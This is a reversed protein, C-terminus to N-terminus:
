ASRRRRGGVVGAFGLLALGAPAPVCVVFVSSFGAQEGATLSFTLRIGLVGNVAPGPASPIPMGFAEGPIAVGGAGVKGVSFPSDLLSAVTNGDILAEWVPTAGVSSLSGGDTDTTLGGGVSGGIKTPGAIGNVKWLITLSYTHAVSDVNTFVANGSLINQLAGGNTNLDWGLAFSTDFLDGQYNTLGGGLPTGAPDFIFPGAGDVSLQFQVTDTAQASTAIFAVGAMALAAIRSITRISSM